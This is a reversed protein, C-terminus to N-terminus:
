GRIRVNSGHGVVGEKQEEVFDPALGEADEIRDGVLIGEPSGRAELVVDEPV